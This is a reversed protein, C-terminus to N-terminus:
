VDNEIDIFEFGDTEEQSLLEEKELVSSDEYTDEFSNTLEDTKEEQPLLEEKEKKTPFESVLPNEQISSPHITFTESELLEMQAKALSKFQIKYTEYQQLLQFVQTRIHQLENQADSLIIQSKTLAESEINQAKKVAAAKTDEATKEALVLAKQLTKEITKYYQIGQTLATVKDRLEMNERYLVEYGSLVERMFQDVERKDYGLGGSKFSKSQIEIPTLM